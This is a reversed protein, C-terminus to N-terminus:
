VKIMAAVYAFLPALALAPLLNGVKLDRIGLLKLSLAVLVAGGVANFEVLAPSPALSEGIGPVMAWHAVLTIPVILPVLGQRYDEIAGLLEKRDDPTVHPHLFGVIHQLVNVNKKATAKVKLGEM